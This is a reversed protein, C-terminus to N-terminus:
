KPQRLEMFIEVLEPDFQIGSEQKLYALVEQEPMARRYVRESCLADWVDVIAFIRASFPIDKGKLHRPYGNGNWREHHAYPIDLANQLYEIPLLWKYAYVPHKRMVVWEEETLPGPKLLIADPVGLKGIDHLLAGMRINEMQEEPIGAKLAFQVAMQTVRQSHGETEKDRLDLANVWGEITRNYSILLDNHAKELENRQDLLHRYRNLRTITQIRATLELSDLPKTLFDDAGARLGQLRSDRDDLATIMIIPMEALNPTARIRRCVEYGDMGPMMVDLLIVDPLHQQAMSMGVLGNEAFHVQYQDSLLLDLAERVVEEDDVVLIKAQNQM